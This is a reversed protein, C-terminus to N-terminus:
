EKLCKNAEQSLMFGVGQHHGEEKLLGSYLVTHNTSLTIKGASTWRMECMGLIGLGYRDMERAVQAARGTETQKM